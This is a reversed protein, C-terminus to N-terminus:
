RSNYKREQDGQWGFLGVKVGEYTGLEKQCLSKTCATEGSIIIKKMTGAQRIDWWAEEAVYDKLATMAVIHKGKCSMQTVHM